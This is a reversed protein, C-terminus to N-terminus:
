SLHSRKLRRGTWGPLCLVILILLAAITLWRGVHVDLTTTWDVTVDVPGKPVNLDILGDDRAVAENAPRGNVRIRWAPYRRLRLILTGARPMVGYIQLHEPGTHGASATRAFTAECSHQEVWWDPNAGATDVVGLTAKPNSALCADPLGTAVVYDDAGNPAYEDTAQFGAGNRYEQVMPAVADEDDCPQFFFRSAGATLAV